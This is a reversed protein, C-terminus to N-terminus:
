WMLVYRWNAYCIGTSPVRMAEEDYHLTIVDNSTGIEDEQIIPFLRYPSTFINWRSYGFRGNSQILDQTLIKHLLYYGQQNAQIDDHTIRINHM